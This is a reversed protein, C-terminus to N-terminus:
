CDDKKGGAGLIMTSLTWALVAVPTLVALGVAFTGVTAAALLGYRVGLMIFEFM